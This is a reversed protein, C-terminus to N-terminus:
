RKRVPMPRKQDDKYLYPKAEEQLQSHPACLCVGSWMMEAHEVCRAGFPRRPRDIRSVLHQSLFMLAMVSLLLVLPHDWVIVVVFFAHYAIFVVAIMCHSSAM